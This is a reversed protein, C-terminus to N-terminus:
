SPRISASRDESSILEGAPEWFTSRMWAVRTLSLWGGMGHRKWRKAASKKRGALCSIKGSYLSMRNMRIVPNRTSSTSRM